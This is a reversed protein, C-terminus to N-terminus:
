KKCKFKGKLTVIEIFKAIIKWNLEVVKIKTYILYFLILNNFNGSLRANYTTKGKKSQDSPKLLKQKINLRFNINPLFDLRKKEMLQGM